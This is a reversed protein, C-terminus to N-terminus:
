NLQSQCLPCNSKHSTSFWKYICASHFKNKCTSCQFKPINGNHFLSYCIPCLEVGEFHKDLSHKWLLCADLVTGDQTLLLSTMSLLWKKWQNESVGVRKSFEVTLIRLPYTEPISLVLSITMEDKEYSAIVERTSTSGKVTFTSDLGEKHNNVRTIENRIIYPSIYHTIFHNVQQTIKTSCGDAWRRVLSPLYNVLSFISFSCLPQLQRYNIDDNPYPFEQVDKFVIEGDKKAFTFINSLLTSVKYGVNLYDTINSKKSIDQISYHKMLIDWLMLNGIAKTLLYKSDRNNKLQKWLEFDLLISEFKPSFFLFEPDQDENIEIVRVIETKTELFYSEVLCVSTLQIYKHHFLALEFIQDLKDSGVVLKYLISKPIKEFCHLYLELLSEIELSLFGYGIKNAKTSASIWLALYVGAKNLLFEEYLQVPIIYKSNEKSIIFNFLKLSQYEILIQYQSDIGSHKSWLELCSKVLLSQNASLYIDKAIISHCVTLLYTLLPTSMQKEFDNDQDKMLPSLLRHYWQQFTSLTKLLIHTQEQNITYTEEQIITCVSIISSLLSISIGIPEFTSPISLPLDLLQKYLANSMEEVLQPKVSVLLPLCSQILNLKFSSVSSSTDISLNNLITLKTEQQMVSSDNIFNFLVSLVISYNLSYESTNQKELMFGFWKQQALDSSSILSTLFQNKIEQYGGNNIFSELDDIDHSTKQNIPYIIESDLSVLGILLQSIIADHSLTKLVKEFGFSGITILIYQQIKLFLNLDTSSRNNQACHELSKNFPTINYKVLSFRVNKIGDQIIQSKEYLEFLYVLTNNNNNLLHISLESLLKINSYNNNLIFKFLISLISNSILCNNYKSKFISNTISVLSQSYKACDIHCLYVILSAWDHVLNEIIAVQDATQKETPISFLLMSFSELSLINIELSPFNLIANLNLQVQNLQWKFVTNLTKESVLCDYEQYQNFLVVSLLDKIIHHHQQNEVEIQISSEIISDLTAFGILKERSHINKLLSILYVYSDIGNSLFISLIKDFSQPVFIKAIVSILSNILETDQKEISQKLSPIISNNFFSDDITTGSLVKSYHCIITSICKIANTQQQQGNELYKCCEKFLSQAFEGVFPLQDDQVNAISFLTSLRHLLGDVQIPKVKTLNAPSAATDQKSEDRNAVFLSKEIEKELNDFLVRLADKNEQGFSSLKVMTTWVQNIFVGETWSSNELTFFDIILNELLGNLLYDNVEKDSGVGYKKCSYILCELYSVLLHDSAKLTTIANINAAATTPNAFQKYTDLIEVGKFLNTFFEKFFGTGQGIVTSPIFTLFPFISPYSLEYSGYCGSRLLAWFRPLVHKRADVGEWAQDKYRKCFSIIAEWMYLHTSSDKESFIGLVKSSMEKFNKDVYGPVKNIITTLVRYSTKRILSSKSSFFTFFQAQFINEYVENSVGKTTTTTTTNDQNDTTATTKDILYEIALLSNSICREYREQLVEPAISKSDGITSPTEQLNECLYEIAKDHGFVLVDKRKKEPFINNFSQLATNVSQDKRDCIAFLWPGLLTKMHAGLHKGVRSGLTGLCLSALDRVYRDDDNVLRKYMFEWAHLLSKISLLSTEDASEINIDAFLKNLEELAKLRSTSDKKQLKKLLVQYQPDVQYYDPDTANTLTTSFASFGIFGSGSGMLTGAEGSSSPNYKPGRLNKAKDKGM